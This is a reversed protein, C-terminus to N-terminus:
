RPNVMKNAEDHAIDRWKKPIDAIAELSWYKKYAWDRENFFSVPNVATLNQTPNDGKSRFWIEPGNPVYIGSICHGNSMPSEILVLNGMEDSYFSGNRIPHGEKDFLKNSM